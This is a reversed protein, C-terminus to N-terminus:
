HFYTARKALRDYGIVIALMMRKAEPDIMREASARVEGARDRRHKARNSIPM